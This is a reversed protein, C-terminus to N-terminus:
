PGSEVRSAIQGDALRTILIQGAQVEAASRIQTQGDEHFTLSYGRGLVALPSLAELSAALRALRHRRDVLGERLAHRGRQALRDLQARADALQARGALRLRDALHDLHLAV